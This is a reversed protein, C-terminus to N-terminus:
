RNLPSSDLDEKGSCANNCMLFLTLVLRVFIHVVHNSGTGLLKKRHILIYNGQLGQQTERCCPFMNGHLSCWIEKYCTSMELSRNVNKRTDNDNGHYLSVFGKRTVHYCNLTVPSFVLNCRYFHFKFRKRHIRGSAVLTDPRLISTDWAELYPSLQCCQSHFCPIFLVSLDTAYSLAEYV